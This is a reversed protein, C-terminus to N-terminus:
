ILLQIGAFFINWIENDSGEEESKKENKIMWWAFAAMIIGHGIDGFM